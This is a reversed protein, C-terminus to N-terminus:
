IAGYFLMYERYALGFTSEIRQKLADEPLTAYHDPIEVAQYTNTIRDEPVGLLSIIDRRSNESVTIIHDAQRAIMRVLRFYRRKQDLTTYPLRLPVLDHLTYVNKAGAVRLPLPYTWHAIDPPKHLSVTARNGCFDFFRQAREFLATANWIEDYYPLR